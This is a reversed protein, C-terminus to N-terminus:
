HNSIQNIYNDAEAVLQTGANEKKLLEFNEVAKENNGALMWARGIMLYMEKRAPNIALVKQFREVAKEYQGSRISLIGLNFQANEHEPKQTVVERLLMIGQMPDSTGEAYCVGLDTKADLNDANIELVKKYCEIAKEVMMKRMLSDNTTQFADFYRYAANIWSKEDKKELAIEEFYYSSISPQQFKDWQRGLSDKYTLNGPEASVLNELSTIIDSEQRKLSKRAAELRSEFDSVAGTKETRVPDAKKPAFYLAASIVLAGAILLIKQSRAQM